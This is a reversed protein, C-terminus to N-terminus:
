RLNEELRFSLEFVAFKGIFVPTYADSRRSLNKELGTLLYTV